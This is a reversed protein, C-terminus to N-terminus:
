PAVGPRRHLEELLSGVEDALALLDSPVAPAFRARELARLLDELRALPWAPQHRRLVEMLSSRDLSLRARPELQALQRRVHDALYAAAARLEGAEIWAAIPPSAAPAELESVMAPRVRRRALGWAAAGLVVVGVLLWAPGSRRLPRPLPQLAPRPAPLSDGSPLISRVLVVATDGEVTEATGDAYRLEIAPMAVRQRGPEFLAVAYTVTVVGRGFAIQPEGLPELTASRAPLAARASAGEPAPLSRSLYVTDGVTVSEPRVRWLAPMAASPQAGARGATGLVAVVIAASFRNV